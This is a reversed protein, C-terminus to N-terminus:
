ASGSVNYFAVEPWDSSPANLIPSDQGLLTFDFFAKIYTNLIKVQRNGDIPGASPDTGEITKWFTDDCLDHHTSGNISIERVYGTQQSLFVEWTVDGPEGGIQHGESALFFVPKRVDADTSNPRGFVTGDMNLGSVLRGDDYLSGLAAAGGLSYGFAGIHTTNIPAKLKQVFEPFYQLFAANDVLRTEYIAEILEPDNYDIDVGFVGTGNPYRLFPQEFPHDLGIITYGYSALGSLLITSGEVPTGGGGPGFLITPYPSKGIPGELFPADKQLTSTISALVGSSYNWSNEYFAATEPNLYPHPVAEPKQLTPYFVTALIATSVNNPAWPDNSNFHEITHTSVSVQYPGTPQPIGVARTASVQLCILAGIIANLYTFLHQFCTIKM